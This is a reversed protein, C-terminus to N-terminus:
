KQKGLSDIVIQMACHFFILHVDESIQMDNIKAHLVIDAINKIKGGDYGCIAVTKIMSQKAYKLARVVNESNGSGSIGIVLDGKELFNQLPLIFIDDYSIDNAVSMLTPLNDNLCVVKFKTGTEYSVGKVFDGAFHSANAGSGGNGFIYITGNRRQTLIIEKAFNELSEQNLDGIVEHLRFFYDEIQQKTNKFKKM